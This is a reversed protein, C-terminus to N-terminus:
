SATKLLADVEDKGFPKELCWRATPALKPDGENVIQTLAARAKEKQSETGVNAVIRLTVIAEGRFRRDPSKTAMEVATDLRDDSFPLVSGNEGNGTVRVLNFSTMRAATQLRQPACEGIVVSAILALDTRGEQRAREYIGEAGARVCALGVLDSILIVDEQRLLRGLRIARRYDAMADDLSKAAAGRAVWSRAYTLPLLLNPLETDLGVIPFIEPYFRM